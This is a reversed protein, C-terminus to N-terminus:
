FSSKRRSGSAKLRAAEIGNLIPMSIDVVLADPDLLQATEILAQGDAVTAVVNFESELIGAACTLFERHDDALVIRAFEM